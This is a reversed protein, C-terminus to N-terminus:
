AMQGISGWPSGKTARHGRQPHCGAESALGPYPRGVAGARLREQAAAVHPNPLPICPTSAAGAPSAVQRLRLVRITGGCAQTVPSAAAQSAPAPSEGGVAPRPAPETARPGHAGPLAWRSRRAGRGM